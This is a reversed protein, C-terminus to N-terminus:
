FTTQIQDKKKFFQYVNMLRPGALPVDLELEVKELEVVEGLKTVLVLPLHETQRGVALQHAEEVELGHLLQALVRAGDLLPHVVDVRVRHLLPLHKLLAQPDKGVTLFHDIM